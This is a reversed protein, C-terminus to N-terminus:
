RKPLRAFQFLLATWILGFALMDQWVFAEQFLLVGVLLQLSPNIYFLFGTISLRLFRNGVHFLVLPVSTVIGSALAMMVGYNSGDLFLSAGEPKIVFTLYVLYALMIPAIMLLEIVMGAFADINIQKRVVAYVAFSAGILLAIYPIGDLQTAKVLVGATAVILALWGRRDLKERFVIMGLAIAMLPYIFYGFASETIQATGVAYLFATWNITVLCAGAFLGALQKKTQITTFLTKGDGLIIFLGLMFVAAWIARHVLIEDLAFATLFHFFIPAIGWLAPSAIAAVLGIQHPSLNSFMSLVAGTALIADPLFLGSIM